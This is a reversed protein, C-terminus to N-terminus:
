LRIQTGSYSLTPSHSAMLYYAWTMSHKLDFLLIYPFVCEKLLFDL